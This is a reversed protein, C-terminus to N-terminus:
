LGAYIGLYILYYLPMVLQTFVDLRLMGVLRNEQLMAFGEAATEPQGGVVMLSIMTALSYLIFILSAFGAIKYINKWHTNESM